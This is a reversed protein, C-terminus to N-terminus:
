KTTTNYKAQSEKSWKKYLYFALGIFGLSIVAGNIEAVVVNNFTAILDAVGALVLIFLVAFKKFSGQGIIM